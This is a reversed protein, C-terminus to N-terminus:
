LYTHMWDNEHDDEEEENSLDKEDEQLEVTTKVKSAIDSFMRIGSGVAEESFNKINKGIKIVKTFDFLDEEEEVAPPSEALLSLASSFPTDDGSIHTTLRAIIPAAVEIFSSNARRHLPIRKNDQKSRNFSSLLCISFFTL